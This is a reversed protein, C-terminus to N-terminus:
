EMSYLNWRFVLFWTQLLLFARARSWGSNMSSRTNLSRSHPICLLLEVNLFNLFYNEVYLTYDFDRDYKWRGWNQNRWGLIHFITWEFNCTFPNSMLGSILILPTGYNETSKSYWLRKKKYLAMPRVPFHWLNSFLKDQRFIKPLAKTPKGVRHMFFSFFFLSIFIIFFINKFFICSIRLRNTPIKNPHPKLSFFFYNLTIHFSGFSITNKHMHQDLLSTFWWLGGFESIWFDLLIFCFM